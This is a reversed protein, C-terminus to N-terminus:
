SCGGCSCWGVEDGVLLRVDVFVICFCVVDGVACLWEMVGCGLIGVIVWVVCWEVVVSATVWCVVWGFGFVMCFSCHVSTPVVCLVFRVCVFSLLSLMGNSCDPGWEM